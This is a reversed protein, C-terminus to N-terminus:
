KSTEPARAPYRNGRRVFQLEVNSPQFTAKAFEEIVAQDFPRCSYVDLSVFRVPELTHIQIGSEILPLWGSLGAKDPYTEGDSRFLFPPAQKTMELRDALADLFAYALSLSSVAEGQCDYMDLMLQYGFPM